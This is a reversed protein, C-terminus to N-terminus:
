VADVLYVETDPDVYFPLDVGSCIPILDTDESYLYSPMDIECVDGTDPFVFKSYFPVECLRKSILFKDM